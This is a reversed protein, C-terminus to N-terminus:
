LGGSFAKQLISPLLADLEAATQAQLAKVADVKAQLGDLYEVIRRQEPLPMKPAPLPALIQLNINKQANQPAISELHSRVFGLYHYLFVSDTGAHPTVGVISDPVCCDFDLIGTAGITAAISILVTGKPFKKSIALGADNLTSSWERIFKHSREIEAIQIWPHSGGFFFPDNRPRHSFKGRELTALDELLVTSSALATQFVIARGQEFLAEAEQAAQKRLSRAEAIQAALAEVRAVIRRQEAMSPPLAPWAGPNRQSECADLFEVIAQQTATDPVPLHQTLFPKTQLNRLGVANQQADMRWALSQPSRLFWALYAPSVRAQNPRLRLLFNSFSYDRGDDPQAYLAAKGVLDTSGSSKIVLIDGARLILDPAPPSSLACWAAGEPVVRAGRMETSRVIPHGCGPACVDGWIGGRYSELMEGLAARPATTRAEDFLLGTAVAIVPRERKLLLEATAALNGNM